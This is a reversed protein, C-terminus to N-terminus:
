HFRREKCLCMYQIPQRSMALRTLKL